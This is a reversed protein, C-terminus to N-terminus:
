RNFAILYTDLKYIYNITLMTILALLTAGMIRVAAFLPSPEGEAVRAQEPPPAFDVHTHSPTNMSTV